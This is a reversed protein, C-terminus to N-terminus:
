GRFNSVIEELSIITNKLMQKIQRDSEIKLDHKLVEIYENLANLLDQKSYLESM